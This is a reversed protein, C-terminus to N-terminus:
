CTSVGALCLCAKLTLYFCLPITVVSVVYHKKLCRISLAQAKQHTATYISPGDRHALRGNKRYTIWRPSFIFYRNEPLKFNCPTFTIVKYYWFLAHTCMLVHPPTLYCKCAYVRSMFKRSWAEAASVGPSIRGNDMSYPTRYSGCGSLVTKLRYLDGTVAPFQVM